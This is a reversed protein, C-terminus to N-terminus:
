LIRLTLELDTGLLRAQQEFDYFTLIHEAKLEENIAEVLIRAEGAFSFGVEYAYQSQTRDSLSDLGLRRLLEGADFHRLFYRFLPDEFSFGTDPDFSIERRLDVQRTPDYIVDPLLGHIASASARRAEPIRQLVEDFSVVSGPCRSLGLLVELYPKSGEPLWRKGKAFTIATPMYRISLESLLRQRLSLLDFSLLRNRRQEEFIGQSACISKCIYQALWFNGQCEDLLIDPEEFIVNLADEGESILKQIETDSARQIRHIGLRPLLDPAPALLPSASNPIGIMVVSPPTSMEFSLDSALKLRRGIDVRTSPPLIHFDDIVLIQPLGLVEVPHSKNLHAYIKETTDQEQGTVSLFERQRRWGLDQFIKHVVCTKGVGSPGEILLHRGPEEIDARVASYHAPKVYTFTPLGVTKFVEPLRRPVDM